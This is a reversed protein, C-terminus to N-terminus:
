PFSVNSAPDGIVTNLNKVIADRSTKGKNEIRLHNLVKPRSFKRADGSNSRNSLLIITWFLKRNLSRECSAPVNQFHHFIHRIPRGNVHFRCM